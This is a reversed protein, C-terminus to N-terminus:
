KNANNHRPIPLVHLRPSHTKVIRKKKPNKAEGNLFLILDSKTKGHKALLRTVGKILAQEKKYTESKELLVIEKKLKALSAEMQAKKNISRM